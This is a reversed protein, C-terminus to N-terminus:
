TAFRGLGPATPLIAVLACPFPKLQQSAEAPVLSIAGTGTQVRM